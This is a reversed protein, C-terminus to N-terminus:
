ADEGKLVREIEPWSEPARWVYAPIGAAQFLQLWERQAATPQRNDVKLEAAIIKKAVKHIMVLDPWGRGDGQVCTRWGRLTRGPRIHLAHWGLRAALQLVQTTFESETITKITPVKV